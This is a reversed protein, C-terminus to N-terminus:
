CMLNKIRHGNGSLFPVHDQTEDDDDDDDDDDSAYSSHLEEQLEQAHAVQCALPGNAVIRTRGLM